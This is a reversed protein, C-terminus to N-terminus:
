KTFNLSLDSGLKISTEDKHEPSYKITRFQDTPVSNAIVIGGAVNELEEATLDKAPAPRAKKKAPSKATPKKAKAM